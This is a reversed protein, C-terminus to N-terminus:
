RRELACTDWSALLQLKITQLKLPKTRFRAFGKTKIPTRHLKVKVHNASCTAPTLAIIIMPKWNRTIDAVFIDILNYAWVTV